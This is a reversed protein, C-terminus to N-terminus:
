HRLKSPSAPAPGPKSRSSPSPPFARVLEQRSRIALKRYVHGLHYEVTKPSLFLAAAAERTTQGDALLQAIQLEQPTLQDLTSANRRRATEGTAALEARAQDAWPRAGLHEFIELAGRLETRARIRKRTRRLRAGYVLRTRGTEFADRTRGHLRLADDFWTEFADSPALLARGPPAARAAASM